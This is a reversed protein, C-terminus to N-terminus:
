PLSELAKTVQNSSSVWGFLTQIVLLSAEHNSRALGAGIPEATCDAPLVCSYDRFMADRITSEVCVSTTCGTVILYKIGRRKLVDDLDTQYFGSFRNKYIVIDAANPALESLIGTNWTDRILVRSERGDPAQVREGVRLPLHKIWNPSDPGGADSLDPRFAMKLYIIQIGAKRAAAIVRATPEVAKQIPAIDIGALDFMGGKAGFDNQMDVVIVATKAVDISIAKPQADITVLRSKSSSGTASTPAQARSKGSSAAIIALALALIPLAPSRFAVCIQKMRNQRPTSRKSFARLPLRWVTLRGSFHPPAERANERDLLPTTLSTGDLLALTIGVDNM